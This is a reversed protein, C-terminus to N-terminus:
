NKIKLFYAYNKFVLIKKFNYKELYTTIEGLIQPPHFEMVIGKPKTFLQISGKIIEYKSGETDIKIIDIYPLMYRKDFKDLTTMNVEVFTKSDKAENGRQTKSGTTPSTCNFEITDAKSGVAKNFPLINSFNNKKVNYLLRKFVSPNPEFSYVKCYKNSKAVRLSHLGINAGLDLIIKKDKPNFFPHIEYVRDIFIEKFPSLEASFPTFKIEIGALCVKLNRKFKLKIGFKKLFKKFFYFFLKLKDTFTDVYKFYLLASESSKFFWDM